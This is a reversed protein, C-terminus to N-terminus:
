FDSSPMSDEPVPIVSPQSDGSTSPIKGPDEALALEGDGPVTIALQSLSLSLWLGCSVCDVKLTSHTGHSTDGM